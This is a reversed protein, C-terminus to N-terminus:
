QKITYVTVWFVWALLFALAGLVAFPLLAVRKM